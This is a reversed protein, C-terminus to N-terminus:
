AIELCVQLSAVWYIKGDVMRHNTTPSSSHLIIIRLLCEPFHEVCRTVEGYLATSPLGILELTIRPMPPVVHVLSRPDLEYVGEQSSRQSQTAHLRKGKLHLEHICIVVGFLKFVLGKIKIIGPQRGCVRLRVVYRAGPALNLCKKEVDVSPHGFGTEAAEDSDAAGGGAGDRSPASANATASLDEPGAPAAPSFSLALTLDDLQLSMQLPNHLEIELFSEEGVAM